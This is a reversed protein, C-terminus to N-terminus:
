FHFQQYVRPVRKNINCTIEYPITRLRAAMDAASLAAAGFITVEEWRPIDTEPGLDAMCQDMCIRGTLPYFRGRILVQWNGSLLRPLGDGYGAPLTAIFTDRPSTWTRGYSLSEGKKVRKILVINTLLEMVPQVPFGGGSPDYGYLLIGPRVMDFWSDRHLLVAGSNAAHVIGPDLGLARIKEVAGRFRRLQEGTFAMDAPLPSDAVALHTATGAYELSSLRAIRAALAPAEEPSCGLRGMGTDIKLHVPLKMGGAAAAAALEGAYDLDSVLPILQYQVIENIEGPLSQSLLLIPAKIGGQRLEGGEPALAVALHSAGASLAAQAVRVAGHGYADAKVPACIRCHPGIRERVARLNGCFRDLHILARTARM